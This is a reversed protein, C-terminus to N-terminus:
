NGIRPVNNEIILYEDTYGLCDILILRPFEENLGLQRVQTHGVICTIDDVMDKALSMPRVWIPSQTVDDGTEDFNDGIRFKFHHPQYKFMDNVSQELTNLNPTRTGLIDECWTKTIGAHSFFFKDHKYCMQLLGKRLAEHIAEGIDIALGAQYGSYTEGIGRLYHFDHNGFLLVYKDPDAEKLATIENFITIQRGGSVGGTRTDFYDGIFVIKDADKHKDIIEKWKVRGHTDGLAIIKM